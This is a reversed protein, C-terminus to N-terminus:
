SREMPAESWASSDSSGRQRELTDRQERIKLCYAYLISLAKRLQDIEQQQGQRQDNM